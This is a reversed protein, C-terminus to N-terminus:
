YQSPWDKKIIDAARESLVYVAAQTHATPVFPQSIVGTLLTHLQGYATSVIVSADVIRLGKVGKVKLDPDVVGKESGKRSMSATGVPHWFTGATAQLRETFEEDALTDPDPGLFGTIYDKYAPGQYWRKAIRVGEKIILVDFPDALFGLDILPKDLPNNSKIKVSGGAFDNTLAVLSRLLNTRISVLALLSSCLM